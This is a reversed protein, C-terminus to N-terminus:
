KLAGPNRASWQYMVISAATAANLSEAQAHMPISLPIDCLELTKERIGKAENGLIFVSPKEFTEEKLPKGKMDLGYIWFGVDKLVRVTNNVNGIRVLPIKFAMGASVKVVSGTVQAQNHEPMLIGSVGFAAASRIVAGVNQPDHVEDLLVLGPNKTVDLSTMFEEFPQMLKEQDILAIIGQHSGAGDIEDDMASMSLAGIPIEHQKLLPRLRDDEVQPALFVKQVVDPRETLAEMLAHRGYIYVKRDKKKDVSREPKRHM